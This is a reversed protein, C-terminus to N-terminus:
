DKNSSNRNSGKSKKQMNDMMKMIEDINKKTALGTSVWSNITGLNKVYKDVTKMANKKEKESYQNLTNEWQIRTAAEQLQQTTYHSKYELIETATGEKLRREAEKKVDLKKQRTERAKELNETRQKDLKKQKRAKGLFKGGKSGKPYSQYRRVGWKMGLIGHHNLQKVDDVANSIDSFIVDYFSDLNAVM